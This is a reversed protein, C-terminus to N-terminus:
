HSSFYYTIVVMLRYVWASSKNIAISVPITSNGDTYHKKSKYQTSLQLIHAWQSRSISLSTTVLYSWLDIFDFLQNTLQLLCQFSLTSVQIINKAKISPALRYFIQENLELREWFIREEMKSDNHPHSFHTKKLNSVAM